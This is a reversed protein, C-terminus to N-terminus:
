TKRAVAMPLFLYAWGSMILNIGVLLGIAWTASSPLHALILVGVALAVIGAVLMWVWGDVPESDVSRNLEVCSFIVLAVQGDLKM